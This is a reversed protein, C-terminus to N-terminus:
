DDLENAKLFRKFNLLVFQEIQTRTKSIFKMQFTTLAPSAKSQTNKQSPFNVRVITDDVSYFHLMNFFYSQEIDCCWRYHRLVAESSHVNRHSYFQEESKNGGLRIMGVLSQQIDTLVNKPLVSESTYKWVNHIGMHQVLQPRLLIVKSRMEHPWTTEQCNVNNPLILAQKVSEGSLLKYFHNKMQVSKHNCQRLSAMDNFPKCKSYVFEYYTSNSFNFEHCHLVSAIYLSVFKISNELQDDIWQRISPWNGEVSVFEDIDVHIQVSNPYRLLCDHITAIQAGSHVSKELMEPLIFRHLKVNSISAVFNLFHTTRFATKNISSDETLNATDYYYFVVNTVGNTQYYAIFELLNLVNISGFLPRVCVTIDTTPSIRFTLYILITKLFCEVFILIYILCVMTTTCAQRGIIM